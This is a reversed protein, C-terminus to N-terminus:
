KIETRNKKLLELKDSMKSIMADLCIPCTVKEPSGTLNDPMKTKTGWRTHDPVGIIKQECSTLWKGILTSGNKAHHIM